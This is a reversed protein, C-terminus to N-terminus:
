DSGEAPEFMLAHYGDPLPAWCAQVDLDVRLAEIPCNVINAMVNVGEELTVMGLAFPEHGRFAGISRRAITFSFLRGRGSARRWELSTNGTALGAPRPYFQYLGSVPDFQLLIEKDRTGRWFPEVFRLPRPAHRDVARTDNLVTM